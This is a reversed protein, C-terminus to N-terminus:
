FANGAKEDGPLCTEIVRQIEKEWFRWEHNYGEVEHFAAKLGIEEAYARFAKFHRYMVFDATGCSFIMKPMDTRKAVDKAIDWTNQPSALYGELGGANQLRARNRERDLAAWPNPAPEGSELEAAAPRMDQPVCSMSYLVSFKEPYAWAYSIAGRGGMSLGAIFNDERKDSAPFWGYVLPMLEETLYDFVQFGTGFGPWNAYDTNQASPMVVILNKESAYLEVNTKRLWDSYDGFTGHLLWLVPYKKGSGYFARTDQSRACDPLIINVDTSGSLYKSDFNLHVLAM